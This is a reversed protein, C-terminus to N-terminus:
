APEESEPVRENSPRYRNEAARLVESFHVLDSNNWSPFAGRWRGEIDRLRDAAYRLSEDNADLGEARPAAGQAAEALAADLWQVAEDADDRHMLLDGTDQERATITLAWRLKDAPRPETAPRDAPNSM